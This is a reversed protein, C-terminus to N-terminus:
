KTLAEYYANYTKKFKKSRENAQKHVAQYNKNNPNKWADTNEFFQGRNYYAYTWWIVDEPHKDKAKLYCEYIEYSGGEVNDDKSNIPDIQEGLADKLHPIVVDNVQMIGHDVTGNKNTSSIYRFGSETEMTALVLAAVRIYEDMIRNESSNLARLIDIDEIKFQREKVVDKIKVILEERIIRIDSKSNVNISLEKELHQNTKKLENNTECLQTVQNKSSELEKSMHVLGCSLVANVIILAGAMIKIIKNRKQKDSIVKAITM